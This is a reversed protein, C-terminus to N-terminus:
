ALYQKLNEETAEWRPPCNISAKLGPHQSDQYTRVFYKPTLKGAVMGQEVEMRWADTFLAPMLDGAQGPVALAYRISKDLENEKFTEHGLFINTKSSMRLTFIIEQWIKLYAGWSPIEMNGTKTPFVRLVHAQILPNLTTTSDVIITDIDPSNAAHNLLPIVRKELQFKADITKGNEDTHVNEFVMQKSALTGENKYVKIPGSLNQDINLIFPRPFRLALTTKGCGAPGFILISRKKSCSEDTLAPM